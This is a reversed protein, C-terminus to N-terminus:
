LSSQLVASHIALASTKKYKIILRTAKPKRIPVVETSKQPVLIYCTYRASKTVRRLQHICLPHLSVVCSMRPKVVLCTCLRKGRGNWYVVLVIFILYLWFLLWQRRRQWWRWWWWWWWWWWLLKYLKDILINALKYVSTKSVFLYSLALANVFVVVMAAEGM